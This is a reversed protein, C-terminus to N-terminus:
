RFSTSRLRVMETRISGTSSLLRRPSSRRSISRGTTTPISARSPASPGQPARSPGLRLRLCPLLRSQSSLVLVALFLEVPRPCSAIGAALAIPVRNLTRPWRVRRNSTATASHDGRPAERSLKVRQTLSYLAPRHTPPARRACARWRDPDPLHGNASQRAEIFCSAGAEVGIITATHAVVSDHHLESDRYPAIPRSNTIDM